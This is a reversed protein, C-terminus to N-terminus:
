SGALQDLCGRSCDLPRDHWRSCDAVAPQDETPDVLVLAPRDDNEPCTVPRIARRRRRAAGALLAVFVGLVFTVSIAFLLTLQASVDSAPPLPPLPWM